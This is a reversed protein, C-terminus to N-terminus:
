DLLDLDSCYFERFKYASVCTVVLCKFRESLYAGNIKAMATALRNDHLFSYEHSCHLSGISTITGPGDGVFLGGTATANYSERFM